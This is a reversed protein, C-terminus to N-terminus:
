KLEQASVKFFLSLLFCALCINIKMNKLKILQAFSTCLFLIASTAISAPLFLKKM